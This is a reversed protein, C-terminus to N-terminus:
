RRRDQWGLAIGVYGFPRVGDPDWGGVARLDAAGYRANHRALAERALAHALTRKDVEQAPAEDARGKTAALRARVGELQVWGRLPLATEPLAGALRRAHDEFGGQTTLRALRLLMWPPVTSGRLEADVLRVAADLDPGVAEAPGNGDLVGAILAVLAHLREEALGPANALRRAADLDGQRAWGEAYGVRVELSPERGDQSNPAPALAKAKDPQKLALFLAVLSPPVARSQSDRSRPSRDPEGAPPTNADPVAADPPKLYLEKARDACTQAPPGKGARLAELGVVALLEPWEDLPGLSVALGAARITGEEGTAILKRSLVRLAEARALPPRLEQLTQRLDKEIEKWEVHTGKDVQAKDGGLDAQGLAVSLLIVDRDLSPAAAALRGRAKQFNERAEQPKRVSGYFEGISRYVAAAAEPSVPSPDGEVAERARALAQYQRSSSLYGWVLWAGVVLVCLAGGAAAGRLFWQRPTLPERDEPLAGTELLTQRSVSGTSTASGWAGEPAQPLSRRAGSPGVPAAKRWDKPDPKAPLPVKIIRRCEPCPAQKGGLETSLHIEEDCYPCRFDITASARAAVAAPEDALAAAALEEADVARARAAPITLVKKCAPCAAKKGALHEKVSLGKKCHPCAFRITSM